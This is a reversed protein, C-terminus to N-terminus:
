FKIVSMVHRSVCYIQLLNATTHLRPHSINASPTFIMVGHFILWRLVRPPFISLILTHLFVNKRAHTTHPTTHHPTCPPPTVILFSQPQSDPSTHLTLSDSSTINCTFEVLLEARKDSPFLFRLPSTKIEWSRMLPIQTDWILCWFLSFWDKCSASCFYINRNQRFVGRVISARIKLTHLVYMASAQCWPICHDRRLSKCVNSLKGRITAEM